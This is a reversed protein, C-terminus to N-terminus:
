IVGEILEEQDEENEQDDALPQLEVDQDETAQEQDVLSEEEEVVEEVQEDDEDVGNIVVISDDIIDMIQMTQASRDDVLVYISFRDLQNDSFYAKDELRDLVERNLSPVLPQALKMLESSVLTRRQTIFISIILWFIIVVFFLILGILLKKQRQINELQIKFKNKM